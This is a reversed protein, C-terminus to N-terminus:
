FRFGLGQGRSGQERAWVQALLFAHLPAPRTVQPGQQSCAAADQSGERSGVAWCLQQLFTAESAYGAAAADAAAARLDERCTQM